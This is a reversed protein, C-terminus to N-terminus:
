LTPEWMEWASISQITVEGGVVKLVCESGAQAGINLPRPVTVSASANSDIRTGTTALKMTAVTEGYLSRTGGVELTGDALTWECGADVSVAGTTELSATLDPTRSGGSQAAYHIAVFLYNAEPSSRWLCRHTYTTGAIPQTPATAADTQASLFVYGANTVHHGICQRMRWGVFHNQIAAVVQPTSAAVPVAVKVSNDTPLEPYNLSVTAAM